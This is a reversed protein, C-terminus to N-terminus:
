WAASGEISEVKALLERASTTLPFPKGWISEAPYSWVFGFPSEGTLRRVNDCWTLPLATDYTGLEGAKVALEALDGISPGPAPSDVADFDYLRLNGHEDRTFVKDM